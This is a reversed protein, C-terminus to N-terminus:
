GWYGQGDSGIGEWAADIITMRKSWNVEDQSCVRRAVRLMKQPDQLVGFLGEGIDRAALRLAGDIPAHAILDLASKFPTQALGSRPQPVPMEREGPREDSKKRLKIIEGVVTDLAREMDEISADIASTENM